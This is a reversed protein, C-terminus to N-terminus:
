TAAERFEGVTRNLKTHDFTEVAWLADVDPISAFLLNVVCSSSIMCGPPVLKPLSGDPLLIWTSYGFDMMYARLAEQSSGLHELFGNLEAVVYPVAHRQLLSEAGQLAAHEAGEVDVKILRPV